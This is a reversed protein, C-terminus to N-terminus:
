SQEPESHSAGPVSKQDPEPSHGPTSRDESALPIVRLEANCPLTIGGKSPDCCPGNKDQHTAERNHAKCWYIQKVPTAERLPVAGSLAREEILLGELQLTRVYLCRCLHYIMQERTIGVSACDKVVRNVIASNYYAEILWQPFHLVWTDLTGQMAQREEDTM